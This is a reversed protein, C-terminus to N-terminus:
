GWHGHIVEHEFDHITWQGAVELRPLTFRRARLDAFGQDSCFAIQYGAQKALQTLRQDVAGYPAALTTVPAGLHGVLAMQSRRLEDRLEDTTLNTAPTHTALHSGFRVGAKHLREITTWDMLPAPPGASSDWSSFGGVHDTVVFVEASFGSGALIPWALDAFDQYADDFTILVPRGHLPRGLRRRQAVQTSTVSHFGHSRLLRMQERFADPTVRWRSLAMPGEDAIRHYALVPVRWSKEREVERRRRVAGGWVIFSELAPELRADYSVHRVDPTVQEDSDVRRFRDVRYLETVISQELRLGGSLCFREHIVKGGYAQDWDFGTTSKDDRVLFHNAMVLVGGPALADRLKRAIRDLEETGGLYYLVESALILDQGGPFPDRVLDIQRYEVNRHSACRQAARALARPSIDAAVLAGVRPALKATFLGEACALELAKDVKPPVLDLTYHYKRQEYASEYRWPDAEAFIDDWQGLQSLKAETDGAEARTPVPASRSEVPSPHALKGGSAISLATQEFAVRVATKLNLPGNGERLSDLARWAARASGSIWFVPNYWLGSFYAFRALRLEELALELLSRRSLPAGAAINHVVRGGSTVRVLVSDAEPAAAVEGFRKLEVTRKAVLGLGHSEAAPCAALMCRELRYRLGRAAEAQTHGAALAAILREFRPTAARYLDVVQSRDRRAGIAAGAVIVDALDNEQGSYAAGRTVDRLLDAGEGGAGVEAAACWASYFVECRALDRQSRGVAFKDVPHKVREDPAHGRRLVVLGDALMRPYNSSLSGSSMRYLALVKDVGTFRAGARAARQWLDWDECTPLAPDFGGAEDIFSRRAIVCHIAVPCRRALHEFPEQGVERDFPTVMRRGEPTVRAYTCYVIDCQPGAAAMMDAVYTPEIWDDSDLFAVWESLVMALGHNRARCVGGNALRVVTIRQDNAAIREVIAATDDTSGDDIVLAQWDGRSQCALSDLTAGITPSANFAPIVFTLPATM